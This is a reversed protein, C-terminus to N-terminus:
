RGARRLIMLPSAPSAEGGLKAPLLECMGYGMFFALSRGSGRTSSSTRPKAQCCIAKYTNFDVLNGQMDLLERMIM